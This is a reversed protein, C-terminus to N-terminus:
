CDTNRNHKQIFEGIRESTPHTMEAELTKLIRSTTEQRDRGYESEHAKAVHHIMDAILIGWAMPEDIGREQWVGINLAIHQRQNALWVRIVELSSYQLAVPPIPLERPGLHERIVDSGALIREASDRNAELVLEVAEVLNERAEELTEGQTNAGPLEVVFAAYGEPVKIYAATLNM